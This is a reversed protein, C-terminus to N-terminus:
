ERKTIGQGSWAFYKDVDRSPALGLSRESVVREAKASIRSSLPHAYGGAAKHRRLEKYAAEMEAAGVKEDGALSLSLGDDEEPDDDPIIGHRKSLEAAFRARREASECEKQTIPQCDGELPLPDNRRREQVRLVADISVGNLKAVEAADIGHELDDLIKREKKATM